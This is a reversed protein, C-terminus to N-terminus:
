HVDVCADGHQVYPHICSCQAHGQLVVCAANAGCQVADCSATADEPTRRRAVPRACTFARRTLHICVTNAPCLKCRDICARKKQYFGAWCVCQVSRGVVHCDSYVPCKTVTCPDPSPSSSPSLPLSLVSYFRTVM